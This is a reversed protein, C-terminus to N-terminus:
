QTRIEAVNEWNPLHEEILYDLSLKSPGFVAFVMMLILDITFIVEGLGARQSIKITEEEIGRRDLQTDDFVM